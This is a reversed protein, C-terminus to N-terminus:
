ALKPAQNPYASQIESLVKAYASAIIERDRESSRELRGIGDGQRSLRKLEVKLKTHIDAPPEGNQYPSALSDWWFTEPSFRGNQVLSQIPPWANQVLWQVGQAASAILVVTEM